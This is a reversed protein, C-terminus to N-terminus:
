TALREIYLWSKKEWDPFITQIDMRNQFVILDEHMIRELRSKKLISCLSLISATLRLVADELHKFGRLRLLYKENNIQCIQTHSIRGEDTKGLVKLIYKM